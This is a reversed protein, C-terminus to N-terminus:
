MVVSFIFYIFLYFEYVRAYAGINILNSVRILTIEPSIAHSTLTYRYRM